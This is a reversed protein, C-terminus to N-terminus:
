FLTRKSITYKAQEFVDKKIMEKFQEPTIFTPENREVTVELSLDEEPILYPKIARYEKYGYEIALANQAYGLKKYSKDIKLQKAKQKFEELSPLANSDQM